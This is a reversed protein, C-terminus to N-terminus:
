EIIKIFRNDKNEIYPSKEVLQVEMVKHKKQFLRFLWFKKPPNVTEKRYSAIIHKESKFKPSVAIKNPYELALNLTYWNDKIVTDVKSIKDIFLTDTFSITDTKQVVSEIYELSILNKNKIKLSDKTHLLKKVLSDNSYNLQDVTLQLVRCKDKYSNYSETYAKVNAIAVNLAAEQNYYRTSIILIIIILIGIIYNKM